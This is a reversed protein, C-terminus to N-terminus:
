LGVYNFPIWQVSGKIEGMKLASSLIEDKNIYKSLDAFKSAYKKDTIDPSKMYELASDAPILLVDADKPDVPFDKVYKVRVNVGKNEKKFAEIYENITEELLEMDANPSIDQRVM